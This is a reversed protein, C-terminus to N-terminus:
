EYAPLNGERIDDPSLVRESLDKEEIVVSSMVDGVSVSQVADMGEIVHGFVAYQGDLGSASPGDELIIYFQSGASDPDNTRAMALTGVRHPVPNDPNFEGKIAYGPGGSGRGEPDGGQIVFGPEVRHFTLGDFFGQRALFVFSNVTEPALEPWLEAVIPGHDTDITVFYSKAEPDLGQDEPAGFQPYDVEPEDSVDLDPLVGLDLTPAAPELTPMEASVDEPLEATQTPETDRASGLMFGAGLVIAILLGGAAMLVV